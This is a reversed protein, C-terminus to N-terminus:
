DYHMRYKKLQPYDKIDEFTDIDNLEELFYVSKNTLNKLSAELVTSTGWAKNQFLETQLTKMGLLYYGGDKAPGIVTDHHELEDFADNIMETTLDLLDSGIIIVKQYNNQFLESFANHMREGLDDGQQLKKRFNNDDWTDNKHIHESYFVFRDAKVNESIKATHQLLTRYIDLANEDGITKALRTKCKGLEPNRAFIILAKKSTPFHFTAIAEDDNENDNSTLFGM